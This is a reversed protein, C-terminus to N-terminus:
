ARSAKRARKRRAPVKAGKKRAESLGIASKGYRRSLKTRMAMEDGGHLAAHRPTSILQEIDHPLGENESSRRM